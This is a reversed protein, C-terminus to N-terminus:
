ENKTVQTQLENAQFGVQGTNAAESAALDDKLSAPREFKVKLGLQNWIDAELERQERMYVQEFTLYGIKSSAETFEQSGGLIIKPIGVAQYFFNELYRIWEIFPQIPPTSFDQLEIEGKKGPLVLVEGNKIAEAYQTRVQTLKDTDDADIYMVRITSRHSIRKWDSMAENRALIVWECAEVVSTGHIQDGVRDNCLHFIEEPQYIRPKTGAVGDTEEYRILKGQKNTIHKIRAPSLPKLNVLTKKNPERVIEAYSDGNIKKVIIMNEMISQFSDEGWGSIKNLISTTLPDAIWGKGATWVALSNISQHLEPITKYYGYWRTWFTNTWSREDYTPSDLSQLDVSYDFDTTNTM